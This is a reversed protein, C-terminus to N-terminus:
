NFLSPHLKVQGGLIEVVGWGPTLKAQLAQLLMTEYYIAPQKSCTLFLRNQYNRGYVERRSGVM